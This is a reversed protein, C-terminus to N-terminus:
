VFVGEAMADILGLVPRYDGERLLDVPKHHELEANPTFLWDHAAQPRLTDSLREVVALVELLRERSDPRPNSRRSMWRSVTRPTTELMRALEAQDVVTVAEGLRDALGVAV